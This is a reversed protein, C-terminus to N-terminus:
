HNVAFETSALLAWAIERLARTRDSSQGKLYAVVEDTEETTPPRSLIAGYLDGAVRAADPEAVLRSVIAGPGAELLRGVEPDNMVFLASKLSPAFEYEPEKPENAFAKLFRKELEERAAADLEAGTARLASALLQEASLRRQKAVLFAEEPLSEVGEPLRSSRQYVRTLALERVLWRIDHGRAVFERALLDLVEPHSAPNESHFQDLPEVLGRGMMLFWLRNVFNPSFTPSHPIETAFAELASFKPVGPQKAKKDPTVEYEQGKEFVAIAIEDRGPVRPGTLREKQTFVSAYKLKESIVGEEVAPYDGPLLTLNKFAAFLGQFDAQDYDDILRHNHCEACQLDMGLFLRGVDRTLGPYDTTNQGYKELRNSLFFTAGRNAEDRFDGRIIQAAMQDWPRNEAFARELWSLWLDHDARREMLHVHFWDAMRKAYDPGNLLSDIMRTRKDPAPDAVFARMEEVTPIVGAFDLHVRRFFEAEEAPGAVPKGSAAQEILADVREHLAPEAATAVVVGAVMLAALWVLNPLRPLM